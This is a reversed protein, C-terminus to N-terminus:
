KLLILKKTNVFEKARMRYFYIGSPLNSANWEFEYSGAPKEENVLTAVENGLVDYILISIFGDNPLDYEVTTGANFPNPYNQRLSYSEPIPDTETTDPDITISFGSGNLSLRNVETSSYSYIFISDVFPGNATPSFTVPISATNNTEIILPFTIDRCRYNTGIKFKISDVRLNNLSENLVRVNKTKFSDVHVMTFQLLDVPITESIPLNSYGAVRLRANILESYLNIHTTFTGSTDPIFGVTAKISDLSPITNNKIDAIYFNTSISMMSDIEIDFSFPNIIEIESFTTDGIKTNNIIHTKSDFIPHSSFNSKYIGNGTSTYLYGLTDSVISRTNTSSLGSNEDNWNAGNNYSVQIGYISRAVYINRVSTIYASNVQNFPYVKITGNFYHQTEISSNHSAFLDGKAINFMSSYAYGPGGGTGLIANWDQGYNISRYIREGSLYYPPVYVTGGKSIYLTNLTDIDLKRFHEDEELIPVNVTQWTIGDDTTLYLATDSVVYIDGFSNIAADRMVELVTFETWTNGGDLSIIPPFYQCGQQLVILKDVSLYNKNSFLDLRTWGSCPHPTTYIVEWSSGYDSSKLISTDSAVYFTGTLM